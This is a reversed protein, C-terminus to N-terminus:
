GYNMRGSHLIRGGRGRVDYRVPVRKYNRYISLGRKDKGTIAFGLQLTRGKRTAKGRFVVIPSVEARTTKGAPLDLPEGHPSTSSIFWHTKGKTREIRTTRMHWSGAPLARPERTGTWVLSVIRDGRSLVISGRKM